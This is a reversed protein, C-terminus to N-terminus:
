SFNALEYLNSGSPCNPFTSTRQMDRILLCVFPITRNTEYLVVLVNLLRTFMMITKENM